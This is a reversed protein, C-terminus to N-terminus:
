NRFIRAALKDPVYLNWRTALYQGSSHDRPDMWSPKPPRLAELPGVEHDELRLLPHALLFAGLRAAVVHSGLKVAYQMMTKPNLRFLRFNSWLTEPDYGLDFRDLCDVFSREPSTVRFTVGQRQVTQVEGGFDPLDRVTNAPLVGVYDVGDYSFSGLRGRTLLPVLGPRQDPKLYHFRLAGVYGIVADSTLRGGLAYADTREGYRTARYVGRRVLELRGAAVHYHLTRALAASSRGDALEERRFVSSRAILELPRLPEQPRRKRHSKM